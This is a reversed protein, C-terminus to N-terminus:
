RVPEKDGRPARLRVMLAPGPLCVEIGHHRTDSYVQVENGGRRLVTPDLEIVTYILDHRGRWSPTPLPERNVRLPSTVSGAGGDWVTIHLQAREIRGPDKDLTLVCTKKHGARSWFPRPLADAYVLRVTTSRQPFAVPPTPETVYLLNDVGKFRVVARAALDRSDAVMGLDWVMEFPPVDVRGLIGAPVLDKTFGHFDDRRGDGREDYGHYRGWYEVAEIRDRMPDPCRLALRVREEGAARTSVTARFGVLGAQAIAPDDGGVALRLCAARILYHGWFTTGRDCSFRLVNPGRVLEEPRLPVSPYSYTCHKAAAGVEPLLYTSKGNLTFRKRAVGPHGGWLELYLEAARAHSPDGDVRLAMEGAQKAEWRDRYPGTAVDPSNVRFRNGRGVYCVTKIFGQEIAEPKQPPTALLLGVTAATTAWAWM